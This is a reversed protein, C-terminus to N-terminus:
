PKKLLWTCIHFNSICFASLQLISAETTSCFVRLLGKPLLSILGTLGLPFWGQTNMPLVSASASAEIHQGGPTFLWSVPFSGSVPFSQSWSSFLVVSSSTTPHCWHSLPCSNSCARLSLSPCPLRAQQLGHPQLSDSMVSCSFFMISYYNWTSLFPVWSYMYHVWEGGFEGGMWVAVFCQASNGTNHLLDKKTIWKLYLLTYM